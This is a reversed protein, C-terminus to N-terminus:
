KILMSSLYSYAETGALDSELTGIYIIAYIRPAKLHVQMLAYYSRGGADLELRWERGPFLNHSVPGTSIVRSVMFPSNDIRFNSVFTDKGIALMADQDIKIYEGIPFTWAVFICSPGHDSGAIVTSQKGKEIGIDFESDKLNAVYFNPPITLEFGDDDMIVSQPGKLPKSLDQLTDAMSELAKLIDDMEEESLKAGETPEAAPESQTQPPTEISKPNAGWSSNNWSDVLNQLLDVAASAASL